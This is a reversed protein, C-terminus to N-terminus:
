GNSFPEGKGMASKWRPHRRYPTPNRTLDLKSVLRREYIPYLASKILSRFTM